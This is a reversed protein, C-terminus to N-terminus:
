NKRGINQQLETELAQGYERFRMAAPTHEFIEMLTASPYYIREYTEQNKNFGNEDPQM